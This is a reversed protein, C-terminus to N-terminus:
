GVEILVLILSRNRFKWFFFFEAARDAPSSAHRRPSFAHAQRAASPRFFNARASWWSIRSFLSKELIDHHDARAFKKLGLAARCAWAKEGRRWAEDGASRTPQALLGCGTQVDPQQPAFCTVQCASHAASHAPALVKTAQWGQRLVQLSQYTKDNVNALTQSAVRPLHAVWPRM